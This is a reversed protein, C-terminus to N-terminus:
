SAPPGCTATPSRSPAAAVVAGLISSLVEEVGPHTVDLAHCAGGWNYGAFVPSGDSDAVFLEPHDRFLDSDDRAIFPALWLGPRFGSGRIREGLAALGSPFRENAQWDGVARQWGDDVQFIGFRLGEIEDLVGSLLEESIDSYFSYWSSWMTLSRDRPRRGFRDGLASAFAEFVDPEYGEAVLWGGADGEFTGVLEDGHLEVRAGLDLAGLLTVRGGADRVAGVASGGHVRRAAYEPDDVFPRREPVLVVAPEEGPDLWRSESWSHWGHRYFHQVDRNLPVHIETGHRHQVFTM